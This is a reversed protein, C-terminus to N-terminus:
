LVDERVKEAQVRDYEMAVEEPTVGGSLIWVFFGSLEGITATLYELATLAEEM